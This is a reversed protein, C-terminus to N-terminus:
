EGTPSTHNDIFDIGIKPISPSEVPVEDDEHSFVMYSRVKNNSINLLLYKPEWNFLGHPELGLYYTVVTDSDFDPKGLFDFLESKNKYLLKEKTTLDMIMDSRKEKETLWLERNFSDMKYTDVFFVWALCVLIFVIPTFIFSGILILKTNKRQPLKKNLLYRLLVFCFVFIIGVSISIGLM